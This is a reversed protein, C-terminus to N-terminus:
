NNKLKPKYEVFSSDEFFRLWVGFNINNAKSRDKDFRLWDGQCEHIIQEKIARAHGDPAYERSQGSPKLGGSDIVFELPLINDALEADELKIPEPIVAVDDIPYGLVQAVITRVKTKNQRLFERIEHSDVFIARVHPM